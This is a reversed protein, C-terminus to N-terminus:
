FRRIIINARVDETEEQKEERYYTPHYQQDLNASLGGSSAIVPRVARLCGGTNKPKEEATLFGDPTIKVRRM